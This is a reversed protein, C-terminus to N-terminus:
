SIKVLLTFGLHRQGATTSAWGVQGYGVMCKGPVWCMGTAPHKVM